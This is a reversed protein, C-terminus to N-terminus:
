GQFGQFPTGALRGDPLVTAAQPVALEFLPEGAPGREVHSWLWSGGGPLAVLRTTYHRETAPFVPAIQRYPGRWREARLTFAGDHPPIGQEAFARRGEPTTWRERTAFLLYWTEGIRHMEPVELWTFWSPVDLPEEQTWHLLDTSHAVAVLGSANGASGPTQAALLMRYCDEDTDRWVLSRALEARIPPFRAGAAPESLEQGM